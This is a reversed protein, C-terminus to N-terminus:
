FNLKFIELRSVRFKHDGQIFNIFGPEYHTGRIINSGSKTCGGEVRFCVSGFQFMTNEKTNFGYLAFRANKVCYKKNPNLTFVFSNYDSIPGNEKWASTAYGGFIQGFDTKIIFLTPFQGVCKKKFADITDGDTATDFILESSLLKGQMFGKIAKEDKKGILNSKFIQIGDDIVEEEEEEDNVKKSSKVIEVKREINKVNEIKQELDEVRKELEKNSNELYEIKKRLEEVLPISDSIEQENEKSDKSTKPLELYFEEDNIPNIIILKCLKEDKSININNNKIQKILSQNVEQLNEFFNFFRNLKKLGKLNTQLFFENKKISLLDQLKFQINNSNNSITLRYKEKNLEFEVTESQESIELPAKSNSAMKLSISNM